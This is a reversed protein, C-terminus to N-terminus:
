RSIIDNMWNLTKNEQARGYVRDKLRKSFGPTIIQKGALCQLYVSIISLWQYFSFRKYEVVAKRLLFKSNKYDRKNFYTFAGIRHRNGYACNKLKILSVPLDPRNFLKDLSKLADFYFMEKKQETKTEEHIRRTALFAPIYKCKGFLGLRICFDYDMTTSLTEDLSGTKQLLTKRLFITPQPIFMGQCILKEFSFNHSKYVGIIEDKKNIWYADGYLWDIEPNKKFIEVVKNVAGPLYTDDSNIWGIIDGKAINLGKNIAESQGNDKESIWKIQHKESYKHLINVTGDSSLGDIIIHEMNSYKQGIVSL